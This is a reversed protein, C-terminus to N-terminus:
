ESRLLTVETKLMELEPVIHHVTDHTETQQYPFMCLHWVVSVPNM